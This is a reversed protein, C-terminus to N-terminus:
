MKLNRKRLSFIRAPHIIFNNDNDILFGYSNNIVKAKQIINTITELNIDCALVGVINGNQFIPRAITIVMKKIDMDLYPSSYIIGKKEVAKKYWDRQTCDYGAPPVWGGADINSKDAAGIYIDTASKNDKLKEQLYSLESSKQVIGM